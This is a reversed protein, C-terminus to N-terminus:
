LSVIYKGQIEFAVFIRDSLQRGREEGCRGAREKADSNAKADDDDDNDARARMRLYLDQDAVAFFNQM